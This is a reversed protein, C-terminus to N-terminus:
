RRRRGPRSRPRATSGCPRRGGRRTWRRWRSSADAAEVAWLRDGARVLFLGAAAGDIVNSAVGSLTAGTMTADGHLALAGIVSGDALGPLYREAAASTESAALDALGLAVVASSLYPSPLLVRGLEEVAVAVEGPGAGAGGHREPVALATLGLDSSLREWTGRDFGCTSAMAARVQEPTAHRRAFARMADRLAAQEPTDAFDM